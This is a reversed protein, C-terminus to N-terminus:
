VDDGDEMADLFARETATLPGDKLFLALLTADINRVTTTIAPIPRLPDPAAFPRAVLPKSTDIFM